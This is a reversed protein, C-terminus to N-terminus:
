IRIERLASELEMIRRQLTAQLKLIREGVSVRAQLENKNFPKTIYDDAGATLGTVIDENETKATLLIIYALSPPDANRVSRIVEVGDIEPMMGDLIALKPADPQLM